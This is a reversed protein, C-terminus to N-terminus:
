EMEIQLLLIDDGGVPYLGEKGCYPCQIRPFIGVPHQFDERQDTGNENTLPYTKEKLCSSCRFRPSPTKIELVAEEFLRDEKKLADFAFCFSDVVVGSFPGIEVLVKLVKQARNERAIDRIQSFLGQVLSLEHM